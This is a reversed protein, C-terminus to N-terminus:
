LCMKDSQAIYFEKTLCVLKKAIGNQKLSCDKDINDM